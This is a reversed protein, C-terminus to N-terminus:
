TVFSLFVASTVQKSARKENFDFNMIAIFITILFCDIDAYTYYQLGRRWYLM